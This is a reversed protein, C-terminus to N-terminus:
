FYDVQVPAGESRKAVYRRLDVEGNKSRAAFRQDDMAEPMLVPAVFFLMYEALPDYIADPIVDDAWFAIEEDRLWEIRANVIELIDASATADLTEGGVLVYLKKAILSALDSRTKSM